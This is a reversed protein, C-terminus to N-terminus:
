SATVRPRFGTSTLSGPLYTPLSPTPLHVGGAGAVYVPISQPEFIGWQGTAGRMEVDTLASSTFAALTWIARNTFIGFSAFLWAGTGASIGAAYATKLGNKFWTYGTGNWTLGIVAHEGAALSFGSDQLTAGDYYAARGGVSSHELTLGYAASTPKLCYPYASSGAVRVVGLIISWTSGAVAAPSAAVSVASSILLSEGIGGPTAALTTNAGAFLQFTRGGSDINAGALLVAQIRGKLRSDVTVAEQPQSDWPIREERFRAM